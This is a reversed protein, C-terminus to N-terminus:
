VPDEHRCKPDKIKPQPSKLTCVKLQPVHSRTGQDGLILGPGGANPLETEAAPGGPFDRNKKKMKFCQNKM